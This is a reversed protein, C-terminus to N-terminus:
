KEKMVRYIWVDPFTNKAREKKYEELAAERNDTKFTFVYYYDKEAIHMMEPSLGSNRLIQMQKIANDQSHYAGLVVYYSTLVVEKKEETETVIEEPDVEEPRQDPIIEEPKDEEEPTVTVPPENTTVEAAIPTETEPATEIEPQEEVEIIPEEAPKNLAAVQALSDKEASKLAYEEERDRSGLRAGLYIEHSGSSAKAIDSTPHEYAYGAKFMGKLRVGILGTLGYGDRYSAGVWIFNRYTALLM